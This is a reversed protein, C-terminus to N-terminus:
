TIGPLIVFLEREFTCVCVEGEAKFDVPVSLRCPANNTGPVAALTNLVM